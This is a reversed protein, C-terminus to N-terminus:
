RIQRVTEDEIIFISSAHGREKEKESHQICYDVRSKIIEAIESYTSPSPSNSINASTSIIPKGFQEVLQRCFDDQVIRVGISGNAATVNAALNKAKPYIISTPRTAEALVELARPPISAVFEELMAMSSVLVIMSKNAPREKVDFVKAVANENTADASIGWITDTPCLLTGGNVLVAIAKNIEEQWM